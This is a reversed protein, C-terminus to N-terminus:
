NIAPTILKCVTHENIVNGKTKLQIMYYIKQYQFIFYLTALKKNLDDHPMKSQFFGTM